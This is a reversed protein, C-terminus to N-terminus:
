KKSVNITEIKRDNRINLTLKCNIQNQQSDFWEVDIKTLSEDIIDASLKNIETISNWEDTICNNYILEYKNEKIFKNNIIHILHSINLLSDSDNTKFIYWITNDNFVVWSNETNKYFITGFYSTFTEHLHRNYNLIMEECNQASSVKSCVFTEMSLILQDQYVININNGTKEAKLEIDESFDFSILEQTFFYKNNQIILKSEPIKINTIQLLPFKNSFDYIEWNLIVKQNIFNNLNLSSSKLGFSVESNTIKHTNTPFNNDPTIEGTIQIQEWIYYDYKYQEKVLWVLVSIVITALIISFLIIKKRKKNERKQHLFNKIDM